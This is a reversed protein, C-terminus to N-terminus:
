QPCWVIDFSQVGQYCVTDAPSGGGEQQASTWAEALSCGSASCVKSECLETGPFAAIGEPVSGQMVSLDYATGTLEEYASYGFEFLTQAAWQGDCGQDATGSLRMGIESFPAQICSSSGPEISIPSSMEIMEFAPTVQYLGFTKSSSCNNHVTLDFTTTDRPKVAAHAAAHRHSHSHAHPVAHILAAFSVAAITSAHM